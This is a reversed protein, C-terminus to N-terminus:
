VQESKYQAIMVGLLSYAEELEEITGKYHKVQNSDVRFAVNREAGEKIEPMKAIFTIITQADYKGEAAEAAEEETAGDAIAESFKKNWALLSMLGCERKVDEDVWSLFQLLRDDAIRGARILLNHYKNVKIQVETFGCDTWFQTKTYKKPDINGVEVSQAYFDDAKACERAHDILYSFAKNRAKAGQIKLAQSSKRVAITVEKVSFQPLMFNPKQKKQETVLPPM